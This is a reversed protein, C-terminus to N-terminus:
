KDKLIPYSQGCRDRMSLYIAFAGEVDSCSARRRHKTKPGIAPNKLKWDRTGLRANGKQIVESAGSANAEKRIQAAEDAQFLICRLALNSKVKDAPPPYSIHRTFKAVEGDLQRPLPATDNRNFFGDAWSYGGRREVGFFM